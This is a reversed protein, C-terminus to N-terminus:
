RSYINKLTSNSSFSNFLNFRFGTEKKGKVTKKKLKFQESYTPTWYWLFYAEVRGQAKAEQSKCLCLLRVLRTAFYIRGIGVIHLQPGV